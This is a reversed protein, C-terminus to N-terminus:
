RKWCYKKYLCGFRGTCKAMVMQGIAHMTNNVVPLIEAPLQQMHTEMCKGAHQAEICLSERSKPIMNYYSEALCKSDNGSSLMRFLEGLVMMTEENMPMTPMTKNTTRNTKYEDMDDM